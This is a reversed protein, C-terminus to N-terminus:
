HLLFDDDRYGISVLVLSHTVFNFMQPHDMVINGVRPLGLIPAPAFGLNYEEVVRPLVAFGVVGPLGVEM